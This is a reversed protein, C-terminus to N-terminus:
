APFIAYHIYIATSYMLATWRDWVSCKGVQCVCVCYHCASLLLPRTNQKTLGHTPRLLQFNFSETKKIGRNDLHRLKVNWLWRINEGRHCMLYFSRLFVDQVIKRKTMLAHLKCSCLTRTIKLWVTSLSTCRSNTPRIDWYTCGFTTKSNNM